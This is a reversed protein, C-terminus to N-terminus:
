DRDPVIGIVRGTSCELRLLENEEVGYKGAMVEYDGRDSISRVLRLRTGDRPDVMPNRCGEGMRPEETELSNPSGVLFYEPVDQAVRASSDPIGSTYGTSCANLLLVLGAIMITRVVAPNWISLFHMPM